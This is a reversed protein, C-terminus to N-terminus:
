FLNKLIQCRIVCTDACSNTFVDFFQSNKLTIGKVKLKVVQNILTM